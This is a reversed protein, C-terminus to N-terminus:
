RSQVAGRRKLEAEIADFAIAAPLVALDTWLIIMTRAAVLCETMGGRDRDSQDTLKM